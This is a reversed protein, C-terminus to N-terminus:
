GPPLSAVFIKLEDAPIPRSILYGQLIDCGNEVLLDRQAETEVGEAVVKLQLSEALALVAKVIAVDNPDDPIDRVFSRDIKLTTIPLRKLYALSSYGTGFDDIALGVDMAKLTHQAEIARDAQQMIFTETIEVELRSNGLGHSQLSNKLYSVFDEQYFQPGAVNIAVRPIHVGESDWRVIQECVARIVWEGIPVILGTDEALPIFSDPAIMGKQPHRWRILAEVSALKGSQVEILPQYHLEFQEAEIAAILQTEMEVRALAQETLEPTYFGYRNGGSEKARYMSVDAYQVLADVESANDPFISIGMSPTVHLNYNEIDFPQAFAALVKGAILTLQQPNQFEELLISFEDGGMRAVIDDSRLCGQLREAVAQLLADGVAHGLSDNIHKFRDLDLIMVAGKQGRRESRAIAHGCLEHFLVRNPLNTLTDYHSLRDIYEASSKEETIDSFVSMYFKTAAGERVVSVTQRVPFLSGDKRRNWIEGRWLGDGLLRQWFQEYFQRDQRGSKLIRPTKGLIEEESYGTIRCFAPNVRLIRQEEDALLIAEVAHEFVSSSLMLENQVRRQDSIDHAIGEVAIVQGGDDFTPSETVELLRKEGSKSWIEVEYTPQLEGRLSAETHRVVQQNIPSDTLYTSYHNIFAEPTYGLVAEVSPSIYTFVGDRDHSYLFYDKDLSEVLHRYKSESKQLDSLLLRSSLADALREAIESFLRQEVESWVRAHSCQHLGVAWPKGIRPFIPVLMASLPMIFDAKVFEPTKEKVDKMMETELILLEKRELLAEMMGAQEPTVPIGIDLELAGPYEPRTVEVPVRFTDAAPDLPFLLFARDCRFLELATAAVEQILADLDQHHQLVQLIRSIGRLYFIEDPSLSETDVSRNNM